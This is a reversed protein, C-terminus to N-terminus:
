KSYDSSLRSISMFTTVCRRGNLLAFGYIIRGKQDFCVSFLGM